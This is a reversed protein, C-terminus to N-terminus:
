DQLSVRTGDSSSGLILRTLSDFWEKRLAPDVVALHVLAWGKREYVQKFTVFPSPVTEKGEGDHAKGKGKASKKADGDETEEPGAAAVERAVQLQAAEYAELLNLVDAAASTLFTESSFYASPKIAEPPQLSPRPFLPM